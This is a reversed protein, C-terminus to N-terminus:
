PDQQDILRFAKNIMHWEAFSATELSQWDDGLPFIEEDHVLSRYVGAPLPRGNTDEMEELESAIARLNEALTETDNGRISGISRPGDGSDVCVVPGIDATGAINQFNGGRFANAADPEAILESTTNAKLQSSASLSRKTSLIASNTQVEQEEVTDQEVLIDSTIEKMLRWQHKGKKTLEIEDGERQITKHQEFNDLIQEFHQKSISRTNEQDINRVRFILDDIWVEYESETSLDALSALILFPTESRVEYLPSLANEVASIEDTAWNVSDLQIGFRSLTQSYVDILKKGENTIEVDHGQKRIVKVPLNKLTRLHKSVTSRACGIDEAMQAQTQQEGEQIVVLTALVRPTVARLIEAATTIKEKKPGANDM